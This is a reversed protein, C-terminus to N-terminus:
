NGREPLDSRFTLTGVQEGISTLVLPLVQSERILVVGEITWGTAEANIISGNNQVQTGRLRPVDKHTVNFRLIVRGTTTGKAELEVRDCNTVCEARPSTTVLHQIGSNTSRVDPLYMDNRFSTLTQKPGNLALHLTQKTGDKLSISVFGYDSAQANATAILTCLGYVGFFRLAKRICM